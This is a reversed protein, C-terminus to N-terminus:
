AFLYLGILLVVPLIGMGFLNRAFAYSNIWKNLEPNETEQLDTEMTVDSGKIVTRDGIIYDNLKPVLLLCGFYFAAGYFIGALAFAMLGIVWDSPPLQNFLFLVVVFVTAGELLAAIQIMRLKGFDVNTSRHDSM